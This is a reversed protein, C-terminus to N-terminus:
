LNTGTEGVMPTFGCFEAAKQFNVTVGITAGEHSMLLSLAQETPYRNRWRSGDPEASKSSRFRRRQRQEVRWDLGGCHDIRNPVQLELYHRKALASPASM